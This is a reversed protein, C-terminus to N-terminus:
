RSQRRMNDIGQDLPSDDHDDAWIDCFELTSSIPPANPPTVKIRLPLLVADGIVILEGIGLIPLSEVLGSMGDPMLKKVIEQDMSNTLRLTM